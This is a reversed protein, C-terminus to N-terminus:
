DGPINIQAAESYPDAKKRWRDAVNCLKMYNDSQDSGVKDGYRKLVVEKMGIISNRASKYLLEENVWNEEIEACAAEYYNLVIVSDFYFLALSKEYPNEPTQSLNKAKGEEYKRFQYLRELRNVVEPASELIRILNLTARKREIHRTAILLVFPIAVLAINRLFETAEQVWGPIFIAASESGLAAECGPPM